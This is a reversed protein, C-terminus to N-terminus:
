ELQKFDKAPKANSDISFNGFIQSLAAGLNTALVDSKSNSIRKNNEKKIFPSTQQQQQQDLLPIFVNSSVASNAIRLTKPDFSNTKLNNPFNNKNNLQQPSQLQQLTKSQQNSSDGDAKDILLPPPFSILIPLQESEPRRNNNNENITQQQKGNFQSLSNVTKEILYKQGDLLIIQSQGIKPPPSNLTAIHIFGNPLLHQLLSNNKNKFVNNQQQKEEINNFTKPQQETKTNEEGNIGGVNLVQEFLNNTKLPSSILLNPLDKQFEEKQKPQKQQQEIPTKPLKKAFPPPPSSPSNRIKSDGIKLPIKIKATTTIITPPLTAIKSDGIKLPIKIKATTTIITPPLTARSPILKPIILLKDRDIAELPQEDAQRQYDENNINISGDIPKPYKKPPTSRHHRRPFVIEEGDWWEKPPFEQVIQQEDEGNQWIFERNLVELKGNEKENIKTEEDLNFDLNLADYESLFDQNLEDYKQDKNNNGEQRNFILPITTTRKIPNKSGERNFINEAFDPELLNLSHRRQEEEILM